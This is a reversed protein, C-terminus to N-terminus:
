IAFKKKKKMQYTHEASKLRMRQIRLSIDNLEKEFIRELLRHDSDVKIYKGM